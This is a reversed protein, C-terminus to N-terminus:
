IVSNEHNRMNELMRDWLLERADIGWIFDLHNFEKDKVLYKEVVNPLERHLMEVDEPPALWDNQGYYLAV